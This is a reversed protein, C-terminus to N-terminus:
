KMFITIAYLGIVVIFFVIGMGKTLRALMADLTRARNKGFYSDSSGGGTLANMGRNKSEQMMIVFILLVSLILLIVGLTIEFANM